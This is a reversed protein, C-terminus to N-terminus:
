QTAEILEIDAEILDASQRVGQLRAYARLYGADIPNTILANLAQGLLERRAESCVLTVLQGRALHEATRTLWDADLVSIRVRDDALVDAVLLREVPPLDCFPNRVQLGSQRLARGRAWLLGYVASMRWVRRDSAVAASLEPIVRDIDSSQSLFYSMVRLDIEIGLTQEM